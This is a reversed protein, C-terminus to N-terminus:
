LVWVKCKVDFTCTNIMLTPNYLVHTTSNGLNKQKVAAKRDNKMDIGLIARIGNSSNIETMVDADEDVVTM